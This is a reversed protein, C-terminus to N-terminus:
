LDKEEGLSMVGVALAVGGFTIFLGFFLMVTFLWGDQSTLILHRLGAMDFGLILGGFVASGVGGAALHRLMFAVPARQPPSTKM